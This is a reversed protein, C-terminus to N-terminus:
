HAPSSLYTVWLRSEGYHVYRRKRETSIYLVMPCHRLIRNRLIFQFPCSSNLIIVRLNTFRVVEVVSQCCEKRSGLFTSCDM